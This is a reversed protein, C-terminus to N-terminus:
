MEQEMIQFCNGLRVNSLFFRRKLLVEAGLSPNKSFIASSYTSVLRSLALDDM